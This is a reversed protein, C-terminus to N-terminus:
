VLNSQEFKEYYIKSINKSITSTDYSDFKEICYRVKELYTFRIKVPSRPVPHWLEANRTNLLMTKLKENQTFKCFMGVIFVKDNNEKIFFSPDATINKNRLLKGKYMGSKGGAAKAMAPDRCFESNSELTFKFQFGPNRPFKRSHYWHELTNYTFGNCEFPSIWFNSLMHRWNPINNLNSYLSKDFVIENTGLGADVNKSKSYFFLKDAM